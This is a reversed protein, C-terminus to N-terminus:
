KIFQLPAMKDFLVNFFSKYDCHVTSLARKNIHNIENNLAKSNLM